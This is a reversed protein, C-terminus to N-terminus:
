YDICGDTTKRVCGDQQGVRTRLTSWAQQLVEANNRSVTRKGLAAFAESSERSGYDTDLSDARESACTLRLTEAPPTGEISAGIKAAAAEEAEPM